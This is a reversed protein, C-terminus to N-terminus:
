CPNCHCCHLYCHHGDCDTDENIEDHNGDAFNCAVRLFKSYLPWLAYLTLPSLRLKDVMGGKWFIGGFYKSRNGTFFTALEFVFRRLNWFERSM